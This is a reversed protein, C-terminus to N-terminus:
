NFLASKVAFLGWWGMFIRFYVEVSSIFHVGFNNQLREQAEAVVGLSGEILM